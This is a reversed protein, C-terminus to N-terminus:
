VLNVKGKLLGMKQAELMIEEADYGRCNLNAKAKKREVRNDSMAMKVLCPLCTTQRSDHLPEGCVACPTMVRQYHSSTFKRRKRYAQGYIRSYALENKYHCEPSCTKYRPSKAKFPKGCIVCNKDYVACDM